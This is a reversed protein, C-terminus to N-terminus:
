RGTMQHELTKKAMTADNLYGNLIGRFTGIIKYTLWLRERAHADHSPTNEWIELVDTRMKALAENLTEDQLLLEARKGRAIDRDLDTM